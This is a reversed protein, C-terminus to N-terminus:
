LCFSIYESITIIAMRTQLEILFIFVTAYAAHTSIIMKTVLFASPNDDDSSLDVLVYTEEGKRDETLIM